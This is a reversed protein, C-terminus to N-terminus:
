RNGPLGDFAPGDAVERRCSACHCHGVWAPAQGVTYRAQGCLCRGGFGESVM